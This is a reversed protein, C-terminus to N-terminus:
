GARSRRLPRQAPPASGTARQEDRPPPACRRSAGACPGVGDSARLYSPSGRHRRMREQRSTGGQRSKLWWPDPNSEGHRPPSPVEEKLAATATLSKMGARGVPLDASGAAGAARGSSRIAQGCVRDNGVLAPVGVAARLESAGQARLHRSGHSPWGRAWRVRADLGDGGTRGRGLM